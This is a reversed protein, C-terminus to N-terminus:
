DFKNCVDYLDFEEVYYYNDIKHKLVEIIYKEAEEKTTYMNSFTMPSDYGEDMVIGYIVM